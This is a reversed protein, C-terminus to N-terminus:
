AFVDTLLDAETPQPANQAVEIAVTIEEDIATKIADLDNQSIDSRTLLVEAFRTIPDRM